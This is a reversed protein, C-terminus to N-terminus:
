RRPVLQGNVWDYEGALEPSATPMTESDDGSWLSELYGPEKTRGTIKAMNRAHDQAQRQREAAAKIRETNQQESEKLREAQQAMQFARMTEANQQATEVELKKPELLLKLAQEAKYEEVDRLPYMGTFGQERAARVAESTARDQQLGAETRAAEAGMIGQERQMEPSTAKYGATDEAIGANAAENFAGPNVGAFANPNIRFMNYLEQLGMDNAYQRPLPM